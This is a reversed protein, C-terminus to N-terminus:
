ILFAHLIFSLKLLQIIAMGATKNNLKVDKMNTEPQNGRLCSAISQTLKAQAEIASSAEKSEIETSLAEKSLKEISASLLETPTPAASSPESKTAAVTNSEVPVVTVALESELVPSPQKLVAPQDSPETHIIPSIQSAQPKVIEPM